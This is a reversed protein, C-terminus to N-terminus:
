LKATRLLSKSSFSRAIDSFALNNTKFNNGLKIKLVSLMTSESIVSSVLSDETDYRTSM